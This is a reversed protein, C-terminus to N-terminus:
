YFGKMSFFGLNEIINEYIIFCYDVRFISGWVGIVWGCKIGSILM